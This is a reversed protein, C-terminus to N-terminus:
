HTDPQGARVANISWPMLQELADDTMGDCPRHDLLFVLYQYVNLGNAKASEVISYVTTSAEAGGSTDSFLWNKRGVTCARIVLETNNNSLSCHGDELYTM